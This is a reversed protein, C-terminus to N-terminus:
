GLDLGTLLTEVKVSEAAFDSVRGNHLISVVGQNGPLTRCEVREFNEAGSRGIYTYVGFAAWASEAGIPNGSADMMPAYDQRTSTMALSEVTSALCAAADTPLAASGSISVYSSGDSLSISGASESQAQWIAPDYTLRFGFDASEYVATQGTQAIGPQTAALGDAGGVATLMGGSGAGVYVIGGFVVSSTTALGTGVDIQWRESGDRANVAFLNGDASGVFVTDGAVSPSGLEASTEYSWLSTGTAADLADLTRDGSGAVYVRDQDVAALATFAGTDFRWREAGTAADVAFLTGGSGVYVLGNAVAPSLVDDGLDTQWLEGGTAADVARLTGVLSGVYVVGDVVAPRSVQGDMELRWVELGTTGDLAHLTGTRSGPPNATGAFVLGDAAVVGVPRGATAFVWLPVATAAEFAIVRTRGTVDDVNGVVLTEGDLAAGTFAGGAESQWRREGTAADVAFLGDGSPVLALGDTIVPPQVFGGSCGSGQCDARTDFQWIVAPDITPGSGPFEGTQGAGGRVTTVAPTGQRAVAPLAPVLVMLLLGALVARWIGALVATSVVNTMTRVETEAVGM